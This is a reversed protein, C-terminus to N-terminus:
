QQRTAGFAGVMEGVGNGFEAEFKGLVNQPVGDSAPTTQTAAAPATRNYMSANWTGSKDSTYSGISWTTMAQDRDEDEDVGDPNTGFTNSASDLTSEHLMVKWPESSAKGELMFNTIEGNLKTSAGGFTANLKAAATFVGGHNDDALPNYIAYKGAAGGTYTATGGVPM